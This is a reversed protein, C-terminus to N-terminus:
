HGPAPPFSTKNAGQVCFSPRGTFLPDKDKGHTWCSVTPELCRVASPFDSLLMLCCCVRPVKFEAVLFHRPVFQFFPTWFFPGSCCHSSICYISCRYLLVPMFFFDFQVCLWHVLGSCESLCFATDLVQGRGVLLALRPTGGRPIGAFPPRNKPRHGPRM